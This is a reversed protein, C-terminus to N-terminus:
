RYILMISYQIERALQNTDPLITAYKQLFDELHAPRTRDLSKLESTLRDHGERIQNAELTHGCTNCRCFIYINYTSFIWRSVFLIYHYRFPANEDLPDTSLVKGGCKSCNLASLYTGFETPDQCRACSCWFCKSQKM